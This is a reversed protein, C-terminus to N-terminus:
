GAEEGVPAEEAMIRRALEQKLDQNEPAGLRPDAAMIGQVDERAAALLDADRVLDGYRFGPLGAQRRGYLEGPGRIQLDAAAIEFGDTTQALVQLRKLADENQTDAILHCSSPRTSRGVRGRLQHLQALGFRDANEVIMVTANPVDVGVEIVTTAVLLQARGTAFDAMAVDKEEPALRGHVLRVQDAGFRDCLEPYIDEAASVDLKESAEIIPCVVYVQEGKAMADAASELAFHRDNRSWIHTTIPARGPPLEDIISVDLDGHLTHALTRPIPTATMVLLHPSTGNPGKGVLSLRQSVGFRHQEDIIALGLRRFQVSEQILAHTGIAVGALGSEIAALNKKRTSSRAQGIHLVARIGLRHLVPYLTEMHQEALIETPVMLASQLGARAAMAIAGLAVFTKGSGVDGQLLRQMPRGHAMDGSIEGLVRTQAHTPTIQLHDGMDGALDTESQAAPAAHQQYQERRLALALQLFFFEDYALRLHAPSRGAVWADLATMPIDDPPVHVMQIATPLAMLGRRKRIEPGLPDSLLTESKLAAARIAKEVTRPAVGPVVPYVPVIRGARDTEEFSEFVIPHALQCRGKYAGVLGALYIRQGKAFADARPRRNSFWIGSVAADGDILTVEMIRRKPHGFLRVTSVEGATVVRDGPVLASIPTVSRRDEYRSPLVFLLDRPSGIGRSALRSATKQGIGDLALLAKDYPTAANDETRDKRTKERVVDEIEMALSMLFRQGRAYLVARSVGPISEPDRIAAVFALVRPEQEGTYTAALSALDTLVAADESPNCEGIIGRALASRLRAVTEAATM